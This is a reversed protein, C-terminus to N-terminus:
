VFSFCRGRYSQLLHKTSGLDLREVTGGLTQEFFHRTELSQLPACPPVRPCPDVAQM